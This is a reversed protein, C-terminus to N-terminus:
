VSPTVWGGVISPLFRVVRLKEDIEAAEIAKL